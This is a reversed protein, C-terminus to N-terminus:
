AQGNEIERYYDALQRGIKEWDYKKTVLQRGVRALRVRKERKKLLEVVSRAFDAPRDKVVVGQNRKIEIGEIGLSTTVVPLGAALAQLLKINTGGAVRIPVVALDAKKLFAEVPKQRDPIYVLSPDDLYGKLWDPKHASVLIFKVGPCGEKIQSYIKKFFYSVADNNAQYILNGIFIITQGGGDPKLKKLRAADVGNPIVPCDKQTELSVALADQRSPAINFDATKWLKKEYRAMRKVEIGLLWKLPWFRKTKVYRQYVQYELNENGMVTKVGLKKVMPLYLAPYYSEFHVLDYDGKKLELELATKMQGSAYAASAFPLSQLFSKALNQWCWPRSKHFLEVRDCIKKLESLHKKQERDRFYSFLTLQHKGALGKILYYARIKGGSVLPWPVDYSLFLIKM